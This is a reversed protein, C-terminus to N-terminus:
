YILLDLRNDIVLPWKWWNREKDSLLKCMTPKALFLLLSSVPPSISYKKEGTAPNIEAAMKNKVDATV